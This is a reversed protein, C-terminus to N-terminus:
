EGLIPLLLLVEVILLSIIIKRRNNPRKKFIIQICEHMRTPNLTQWFPMKIEVPVSADKIMFIGLIVAIVSLVFCILFSNFFGWYRMMYGVIGDGIPMAIIFIGHIIGLRMTRNKESTIDCIYLQSAFILMLRGGTVGHMICEAVATIKAPFTWFYSFLCGMMTICVLGILPIIILPRRRRGAKDSWSTTLVTFIIMLTMGISYRWSNIYTVFLQGAKEDDCPTRLDPETTIDFRCSKQLYLNVFLQNTMATTIHFIAISPEITVYKWWEINSRFFKNHWDFKM